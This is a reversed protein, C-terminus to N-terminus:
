SALQIGKRFAEINMALLAEEGRSKHRREIEDEIIDPSFIEIAGIYAGLLIMNAVQINGMTSATEMAPIELVTIDDREVNEQAGHKEIVFKGGQRVRGEYPKIQSAEYIVVADAKALVPSGIRDHSIAITCEVPGSRMQLGYSPFYIVREYKKIAADALLRGAM